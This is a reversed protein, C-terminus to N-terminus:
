KNCREGSYKIKMDWAALFDCFNRRVNNSNCHHFHIDWVQEINSLSTKTIDIQQMNILDHLKEKDKDMKGWPRVKKSTLQM